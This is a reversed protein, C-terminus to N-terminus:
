HMPLSSCRYLTFDINKTANTEHGNGLLAVVARLTDILGEEGNDQRREGLDKIFEIHYCFSGWGSM